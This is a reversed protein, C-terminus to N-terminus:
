AIRPEDGEVHDFENGVAVAVTDAAIRVNFATGVALAVGGGAVVQFPRDRDTSVTFFAEGRYLDIRRRDDTFRVALATDTNLQVFSGDGLAVSRTEGVGTAHDARWRDFIDDGWLGIAALLLLSAALTARWRLRSHRSTRGQRQQQRPEIPPDGPRAVGTRPDAIQGLEGWLAETEVYARHHAPDRALWAEFAQRDSESVGDSIMRVFWRTAEAALHDGQPEAMGTRGREEPTGRLMM